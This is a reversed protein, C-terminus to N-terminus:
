EALSALSLLCSLEITVSKMQRSRGLAGEFVQRAEAFRGVEELARGRNNIIPVPPPAVPDRETAVRLLKDYLEVARKPVGAATSINAWNSMLVMTASSHERGAELYKGLAVEFYHNAQAYDGVLR